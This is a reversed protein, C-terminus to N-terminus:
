SRPCSGQPAEVNTRVQLAGALRGVADDPVADLEHSRSGDKGHDSVDPKGHASETIDLVAPLAKRADGLTM